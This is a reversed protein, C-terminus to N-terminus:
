SYGESRRYPDLEDFSSSQDTGSSFGGSSISAGSAAECEALFQNFLQQVVNPFASGQTPRFFEVDTGQTASVRKVNSGTTANNQITPDLGLQLALEAQANKLSQPADAKNYTCRGAIVRELWNFASVLAASKNELGDWSELYLTDAFYTNAEAVTIYSNTGVTLAM